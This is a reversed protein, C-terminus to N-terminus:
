IKLTAAAFLRKDTTSKVPVVQELTHKKNWKIVPSSLM